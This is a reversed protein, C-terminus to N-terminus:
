VRSRWLCFKKTIHFLLWLRVTGFQHQFLDNLKHDWSLAAHKFRSFHWLTLVPCAQQPQPRLTLPRWHSVQWFFYIMHYKLVSITTILWVTLLYTVWYREGPTNLRAVSLVCLPKVFCISNYSCLVFNRELSLFHFSTFSFSIKKRSKWLFAGEYNFIFDRERDREEREIKGENEM